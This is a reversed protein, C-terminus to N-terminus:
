IFLLCLLKLIKVFLGEFIACPKLIKVLNAFIPWIQASQWRGLFAFLLLQPLKDKEMM